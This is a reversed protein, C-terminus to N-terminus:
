CSELGLHGVVNHRLKPSAEAFLVILGHRGINPEGGHVDRESRGHGSLFEERPRLDLVPAILEVAELRDGPGAPGEAM